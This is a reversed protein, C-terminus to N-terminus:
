CKCEQVFGTELIGNEWPWQAPSWSHGEDGSPKANASHEMGHEFVLCDWVWAHAHTHTHAHWRHCCPPVHSQSSVQPDNPQIATEEERGTEVWLVMLFLYWLHIVDGYALSVSLHVYRRYLHCKWLDYKQYIMSRLVLVLQHRESVTLFGRFHVQTKM